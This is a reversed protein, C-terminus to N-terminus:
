SNEIKQIFDPSGRFIKFVLGSSHKMDFVAQDVEHSQGKLIAYVKQVSVDEFLIRV